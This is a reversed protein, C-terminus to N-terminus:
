TWYNIKFADFWFMEIVVYNSFFLFFFPFSITSSIYSSNLLKNLAWLMSWRHQSHYSNYPNWYLLWLLILWWFLLSMIYLDPNCQWHEVCGGSGELFLFSFFSFLPFFHKVKRFYSFDFRKNICLKSFNLLLKMKYDSSPSLIHICMVFLHQTVLLLWNFGTLFRM